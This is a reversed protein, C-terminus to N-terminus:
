KQDVGRDLRTSGKARISASLVPRLARGINSHVHSRKGREIGSDQRQPSLNSSWRSLSVGRSRDYDRSCFGMSVLILSELEGGGLPPLFGFDVPSYM